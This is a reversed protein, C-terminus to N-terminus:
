HVVAATHTHAPVSPASIAQWHNLCNALIGSLGPGTDPHHVLVTLNELIKRAILRRHCGCDEAWRTMLSLSAAMLVEPDPLPPTTNAETHANTGPDTGTNASNTQLPLPNRRTM